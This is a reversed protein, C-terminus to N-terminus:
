TWGAWVCLLCSCLFSRANLICIAVAREVNLQAYTRILIGFRIIKKLKTKADVSTKTSIHSRPNRPLLELPKVLLLNIWFMSVHGFYIPAFQSIIPRSAVKIRSSMQLVNCIPTLGVSRESQLCSCLIHFSAHSWRKSGSRISTDWGSLSSVDAMFFILPQSPFHDHLFQMEAIWCTYRRLIQLSSYIMSRLMVWEQLNNNGWIQTAEVNALTVINM